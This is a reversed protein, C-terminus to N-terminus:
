FKKEIQLYFYRQIPTANLTDFGQFFTGGQTSLPPATDFLNNIGFTFTANSLLSRWWGRSVEPPTTAQDGLIRKGDQDFGPKASGLTIEFTPGFQYSIQWDLTTWSGVLHVYGPPNLGADVAPLTGKFNDIGDHESDLYNLTFGTRLSDSGITRKSYFLSAVLKFDPLTFSDDLRLILFRATGNELGELTKISYNYIYPLM